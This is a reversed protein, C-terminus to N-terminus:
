SMVIPNSSFRNGRAERDVKKNLVKRRMDIDPIDNLKVEGADMKQLWYSEDNPAPQVGVNTGKPTAAKAAESQRYETLQAQFYGNSLMTELDMGSAKIQKEVFGFETPKIGQTTLFAKKGYDLEIDKKVPKSTEDELGHRKRLQEARRTHYSIEDEPSKFRPKKDEKTVEETAVEEVEVEKENAEPTVIVEQDNEM